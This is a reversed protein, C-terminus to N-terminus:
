FGRSKKARVSLFKSYRHHQNSASPHDVQLQRYIAPLARAVARIADTELAHIKIRRVRWGLRKTIRDIGADKRNAAVQWDRLPSFCRQCGHYWCGDVEIALREQRILADYKHRRGTLDFYGPIEAQQEYPCGFADLISYVLQEYRSRTAMYLHGM